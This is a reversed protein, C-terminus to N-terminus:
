DNVSSCAKNCNGEEFNVGNEICGNLKNNKERIKDQYEMVNKELQRMREEAELLQKSAEDTRTEIAKNIKSLIDSGYCDKKEFNLSRYLRKSSESTIEPNKYTHSPDSLNVIHMSVNQFAMENYRIFIQSYLHTPHERNLSNTLLCCTFLNDLISFSKSLNKHIIKERVTLRFGNARKFKFWAVVKGLNGGLFEEMKNKDIKGTGDYFFGINPCPVATNIKIIREKKVMNVDNDTLSQTENETIDGLLFGEQNYLSCVNDYLLLSFATGSLSVSLTEVM